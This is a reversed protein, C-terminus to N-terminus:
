RARGLRRLAAYRRLAALLRLRSSEPEPTLEALRELGSSSVYALSHMPPPYEESPFPAPLKPCRIPM